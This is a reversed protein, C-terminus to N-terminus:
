HLVKLIKIFDLLFLFISKALKEWFSTYCCLSLLNKSLPTKEESKDINDKIPAKTMASLSSNYFPKKCVMQPALMWEM